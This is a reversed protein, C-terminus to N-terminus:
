HVIRFQSYQGTAARRESQEDDINGRFRGRLDHLFAEVAEEPGEAFLQVRGDPLNKVWGTVPYGRAIAAATLRFGVGQVRGGYYVTVATAERASGDSADSM